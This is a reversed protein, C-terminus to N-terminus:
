TRNRLGAAFDKWVNVDHHAAVAGLNVEPPLVVPDLLEVFSPQDLTAVMLVPYEPGGPAAGVRRRKVLATVNSYRMRRSTTYSVLGNLRVVGKDVTSLPKESRCILAYHRRQSVVGGISVRSTV